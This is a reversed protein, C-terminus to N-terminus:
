NKFGHTNWPFNLGYTGSESVSLEDFHQKIFVIQHQFLRIFRQLDKKERKSNPLQKALWLYYVCLNMNLKLCLIWLARLFLMLCTRM